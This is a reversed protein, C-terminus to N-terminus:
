KNRSGNYDELLLYCVSKHWTIVAKVNSYMSVNINVDYSYVHLYIFINITSVMLM